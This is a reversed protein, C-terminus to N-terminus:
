THTEGLHAQFLHHMQQMLWVSPGCALHNLFYLIASGKVTVMTITLGPTFQSGSMGAAESALARSVVLLVEEYGECLPEKLRWLWLKVVRSDRQQQSTLMHHQSARSHWSVEYLLCGLSWIDSKFNYGNEHIREPSMYYPTGVPLSFTQKCFVNILEMRRILNFINFKVTACFYMQIRLSFTGHPKESLHSINTSTQPKLHHKLLVCGDM